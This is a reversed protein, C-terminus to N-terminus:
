QKVQVPSVAGANAGNGLQGSNNAGWCWAEGTTSDVACTHLGATSIGTFLHNGIVAVRVNPSSTASNGLQGSAGFGVCYAAGINDLMCTHFGGSSVTGWTLQSSMAVEDQRFTNDGNGLQGEANRGSCWIKNPSLLERFCSHGGGAQALSMSVDSVQTPANRVILDGVGLQGEGNNGWCYALDNDAIGCTHRMGASISKFNPWGVTLGGTVLTPVNRESEIAGAGLQGFGNHGWCYAGAPKGGSSTTACTFGTAPTGRNDGSVGGASVSEFVVGGPTAVLQPATFTGESAGNGLRGQGNFGWCYIERTTTLGCTHDHGTSIQAFALGGTVLRPVSDRLVTGIGLAGQSNTGWCYASNNVTVACTHGGSIGGFSLQGGGVDIQKFTLKVRFEDSGAAQLSGSRASMAYGAGALDVRLNSFTAVGDVANVTLTGVLRASGGFPARGGLEVTVPNTATPVVNGFADTIQVRATFESNGEVTRPPQTSFAVRAAPGPNIDFTGSAASPLTGSSASLKYGTGAKDISLGSFSAVGNVANVIKTGSLTGSGPNTGVALMVTGRASTVRQGAADRLEVEVAPSLAVGAASNTPQVTFALQTAVPPPAASVTLAATTPVGQGAATITATGGNVGTALGKQDVIAVNHNSSVWLLTVAVVNGNADQAEASFQQTAGPAITATAPEIAVSAVRQSVLLNVGSSVAGVAASVTAAGNAVAKAVGSASVGVVSAASSSWTFTAGNVTNNNADKGIAVLQVTAGLAELTDAGPTVTVSAVKQAVKLDASGSKGDATATIKADGNGVATAVGSADVTIVNHASSSWAFSAGNVVNNNADSGVAALQTTAGLAELTAAASTVSVKAVKQTVQVNVSGSQGSASAIISASGNGVATVVGSANVTAVNPASSSFTFTVGSCSRGGADRASPTLQTTAGFAELPGAAATVSVSAVPNASSPCPKEVETGGGCALASLTAGGVLFLMSRSGKRTTRM